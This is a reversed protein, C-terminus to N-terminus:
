HGDLVESRWEGDGIGKDFILWIQDGQGLQARRRADVFYHGIKRLIGSGQMAAQFGTNFWVRITETVTAAGTAPHAPSYSLVGRSATQLQIVGGLEKNDLNLTIGPTAV